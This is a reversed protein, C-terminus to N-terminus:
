GFCCTILQASTWETQPKYLLKHQIAHISSCPRCGLRLISRGLRPVDAFVCIAPMESVGYSVAGMIGVEEMQHVLLRPVLLQKTEDLSLLRRNVKDCGHFYMVPVRYMTSLVVDYQISVFRGHLADRRIEAQTFNTSSVTAQALLTVEDREDREGEAVAEHQDELAPLLAPQSKHNM